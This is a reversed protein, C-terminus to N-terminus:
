FASAVKYSENFNVVQPLRAKHGISFASCCIELEHILRGFSM